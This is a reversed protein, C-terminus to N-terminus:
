LKSYRNSVVEWDIVNFINELYENRKNQYRLYYAHEWVDVGLIPDGRQEEPIIDMIPSDQNATTVIKLGESTKILWAWGSGFRGLAAEIFQSKFENFSGFKKNIETSLEETLEKQEPTLAEFFLTHNYHGGGNNRVKTQVSADLSALQGILQEIPTNLSDDKGELAANLKSVYGDHHKGHHIEMTQADIYNDLASYAYKLKPLTFSM